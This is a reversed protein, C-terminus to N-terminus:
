AKSKKALPLTFVFSSGKGLKSEELSIKGGMGEILLKSIYLGMGTGQTVDRTLIQEGAQQFKHFLLKQNEWAIGVGSDKIRFKVLQGDKETEMTIGGQKTYKLANDILNSIVQRLRDRDALVSLLPVGKKYALTIKKASAITAYEKIGEKILADIDISEQKFKIRKQELRSTDLFDNVIKILRISSEYIDHLMEKLDKNQTLKDGYYTEILSVNGRIATLPTRLEHSALAFFEERARELNKAATIDELLIVTGICKDGTVIPAIYLHLHKDQFVIAKEDFWKKTKIAMQCMGLLDIKGELKEALEEITWEGGSAQGLITIVAPNTTMVKNQDDTMIFGLSLSNISATLRAKEQQLQFWAESIKDRAQRLEKTREEVKKEINAKEDKLQGELLKEDELLNVMALKSEELTKNKEDIEIIRLALEEKNKEIQNKQEELRALMNNANLALSGLEDQSFVQVRSSFDRNQSIRNVDSILRGIPMVINRGLSYILSIGAIGGLLVLVLLLYYITKIGQEYIDRHMTVTLILAPQDELDKVLGFGIISDKDKEFTLVAQKNLLVGLPKKLGPYLDNPQNMTISLESTKSLKDLEEQDFISAMIIIGHAPGEGQSNLIPWVSVLWYNEPLHFVGKVSQQSKIVNITKEDTFHDELSKPFSIAIKKDLDFAKGYVMKGSTDLIAIVNLGSNTFTSDTLNTEIFEKNKDLVFTYLDDWNAWDGNLTDLASIKAQLAGKARLVNAEAKTKEVERFGDLILVSITAIGILSFLLMLLLYIILKQRLKM